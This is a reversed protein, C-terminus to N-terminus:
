WFRLGVGARLFGVVAAVRHLQFDPQQFVFTERYFPVLAGGELRLLFAGLDLRAEGAAVAAMWPWFGSSPQTVRSSRIGEGHFRGAELGVCPTLWLRGTLRAEVPCGELRGLLLNLRASHMDLQTVGSSSWAIGLRLLATETRELELNGSFMPRLAPMLGVTVGLDAGLGVRLPRLKAPPRTPEPRAPQRPPPRTVQLPETAPGPADEVLPALSAQPDLTLAAILALGSVVERCTAGDVSRSTAPGDSEEIELRGVSRGPSSQLVVRFHHTANSGSVLEVRSSRAAVEHVFADRAPCGEDAEYDLSFREVDAQAVDAQAVGALHLLCLLCAAGSLTPARVSIGRVRGREAGPASVLSDNANDHRRAEEM